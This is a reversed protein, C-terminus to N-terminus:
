DRQRFVRFQVIALAAVVAFLFYSAASAIGYAGFGFQKYTYYGLTTTSGLPGGQTLVFPEEFVQFFYVTM